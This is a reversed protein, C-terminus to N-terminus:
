NTIVGLTIRTSCISVILHEIINLHIIKLITTVLTTYQMIVNYVSLQYQQYDNCMQVCETVDMIVGLTVGTSRVSETLHDITNLNFINLITTVSALYQMIVNYVSLQYQQYDNCVQVCETVDMIVGLMVGTSCVEASADLVAVMNCISSLLSILCTTIILSTMDGSTYICAIYVISYPGAGEIADIYEITNRIAQILQKLRLISVKKYVLFIGSLYITAFNIECDKFLISNSQLHHDARINREIDATCVTSATKFLINHKYVPSNGLIFAGSISFDNMLRHIVNLDVKGHKLNDTSVTTCDIIYSFISISTTILFGINHLVISRLGFLVMFDFEGSHPKSVNILIHQDEISSAEHYIKLKTGYSGILRLLSIVSIFTLPSRDMLVYAEKKIFIPLSQHIIEQEAELSESNEYLAHVIKGKNKSILISKKLNEESFDNFQVFSSWYSNKLDFRTFHFSTDADSYTKLASRSNITFIKRRVNKLIRIQVSSKSGSL